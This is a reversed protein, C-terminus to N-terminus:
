LKSSFFEVMDDVSKEMAASTSPENRNGRVAFGHTTGPYFIFTSPINIEELIKKSEQQKEQPFQQDTEACMYLGTTKVEKIDDPVHVFSPHAVAYATLQDKEKAIEIVLKAGYCYGVMGIKEIGDQEKMHQIMLRANSIKGSAPHNQIWPGINFGTSFADIPVAEGDLYDPVVVLANLRKSLQDAILQANRIQYGFLDTSIIIARKVPETPRIIYAKENAYTGETGLVEADIFSGKLCDDCSM